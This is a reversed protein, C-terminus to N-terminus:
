KQQGKWTLYNQRLNYTKSNENDNQFVHCHTIKQPNKTKTKKKCDNRWNQIM